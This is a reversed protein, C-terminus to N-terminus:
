CSSAWSRSSASGAHIRPTAWQIVLQSGQRDGDEFLRAEIRKSLELVEKSAVCAAMGEPLPADLLAAALNVLSEVADSLLGISDTVVYAGMKLAITFLAAGVSLLAYARASPPPTRSPGLASRVRTDPTM